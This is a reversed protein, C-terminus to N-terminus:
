VKIEGENHGPVKIEGENEGENHGPVAGARAACLLGACSWCRALIESNRCEMERTELGDNKTVTLTVILVDAFRSRFPSSVRTVRLTIEERVIQM